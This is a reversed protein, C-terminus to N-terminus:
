SLVTNTAGLWLLDTCHKYSWVLATWYRAKDPCPSVASAYCVGRVGLGCAKVHHLVSCESSYARLPCPM